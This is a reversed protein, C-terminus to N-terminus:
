KKAKDKKLSKSKQKVGKKSALSKKDKKNENRIQKIWKGLQKDSVGTSGDSEIM